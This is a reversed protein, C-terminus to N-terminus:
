GWELAMKILMQEWNRFHIILHNLFFQTDVNLLAITETTADSGDENKTDVYCYVDKLINSKKSQVNKTAKKM